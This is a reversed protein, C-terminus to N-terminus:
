KYNPEQNFYTLTEDSSASGLPLPVMNFNQISTIGSFVPVDVSRADFFGKAKVSIDLLNYPRMESDPVQSFARNPAPVKLTLATGSSDTQGAAILTREGDNVATVVVSAGVVPTSENGTRVNVIIYGSSDGMSKEPIVESKSLEEFDPLDPVTFARDTRSEETDGTYRFYSSDHKGGDYDKDDYKNIEKNENEQNVLPMQGEAVRKVENEDPIDEIQRMNDNNEMMETGDTVREEMQTFENERLENENVESDSIEERESIREAPQENVETRGKSYLKLLENKYAEIDRQEM